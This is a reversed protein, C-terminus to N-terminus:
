LPLDFLLNLGEYEKSPTIGGTTKNYNYLTNFSNNDCIALYVGKDAFMEITDCELIRYQVGNEVIESYGGGITYIYLASQNIGRVFPIKMDNEIYDKYSPIPLKSGAASEISTVIYTTNNNVKGPADKKIYESLSKGSFM